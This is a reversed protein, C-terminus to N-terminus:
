MAHSCHCGDIGEVDDATREKERLGLAASGVDVGLAYLRSVDQWLKDWAGLVWGRGLLGAGM